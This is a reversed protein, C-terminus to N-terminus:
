ELELEYDLHAMKADGWDWSPGCGSHGHYKGWRLPFGSLRHTNIKLGSDKIFSFLARSDSFRTLSGSLVLCGTRDTLSLCGAPLSFAQLCYM